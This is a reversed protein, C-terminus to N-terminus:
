NSLMWLDMANFDNKSPSENSVETAFNIMMLLITVLLAM